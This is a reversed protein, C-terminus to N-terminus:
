AWSGGKQHLDSRCGKKRRKLDDEGEKPDQESMAGGRPRCQKIGQKGNESKGEELERSLSICSTRKGRKSRKKGGKKKRSKSRSYRDEENEDKKQEPFGKV